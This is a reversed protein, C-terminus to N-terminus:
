GPDGHGMRRYNMENNLGLYVCRLAEHLDPREASIDFEVSRRVKVHIDVVWVKGTERYEMTESYPFAAVNEGFAAMRALIGKRTENTDAWDRAVPNGM